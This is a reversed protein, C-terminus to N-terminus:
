PQLAKLKSDFATVLATKDGIPVYILLIRIKDALGSAKVKKALSEIEARLSKKYADDIKTAQALAKSPAVIAVPFVAASVLDDLSTQSEFFASVVEYSPTTKPIQPGLLLKQDTLFGHEIHENISTLAASVASEANAYFKSEGLWIEADGSDPFRAHVMDFAKVVDNSASKYFVRASIPITSFFERCLAHLTIEGIEGRSGSKATTYVRIAAQQLKIFANSHDISLEPEPLAYEPLWEFLHNVFGGSRWVNLEFGACYIGLAPKPALDQHVPAFFRKPKKAYASM